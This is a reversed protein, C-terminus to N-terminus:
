AGAAKQNTSATSNEEIKLQSFTNVTYINPIIGVEVRKKELFNLKADGRRANRTKRECFLNADKERAPKSILNHVCRTGDQRLKGLM